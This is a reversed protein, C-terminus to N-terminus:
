ANPNFSHAVMDTDKENKLPKEEHKHTQTNQKCTHRHVVQMCYGCRGSSPMQNGQVPTIALESGDRWDRFM